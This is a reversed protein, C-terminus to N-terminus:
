NEQKNTVHQGKPESTEPLAAPSNLRAILRLAHDEGCAHFHEIELDLSWPAMMILGHDDRWVRYWHNADRKITQCIDCSFPQPLNAM